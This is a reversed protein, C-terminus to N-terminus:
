FTKQLLCRAQKAAERERAVAAEKAMCEAHAREAAARAGAADKAASAAAAKAAALEGHLRAEVQKTAEEAGQCVCPARKCTCCLYMQYRVSTVAEGAAYAHLLLSDGCTLAHTCVVRCQYRGYTFNM